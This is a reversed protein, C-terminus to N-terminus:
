FRDSPEILKKRMEYRAIKESDPMYAITEIAYGAKKYLSFATQNQAFVNLWISGIKKHACENELLQLAQCAYGKGRFESDIHLFYLSAQNLDKEIQYWLFGIRNENEIISYIYQDPTALEQFLLEKLEQNAAERANKEDGIFDIIDHVYTDLAIEYFLPYEDVLISHLSANACISNSFSLMFIISLISKM